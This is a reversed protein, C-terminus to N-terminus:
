QSVQIEVIVVPIWFKLLFYCEADPLFFFPVGPACCQLDVSPMALQRSPNEPCVM